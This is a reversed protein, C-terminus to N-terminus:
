TGEGTLTFFAAELSRARPALGLVVVGEEAAIAGVQEPTAGLVLLDDGTREVDHGRRELVEVLRDPDQV